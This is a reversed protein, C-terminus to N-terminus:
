ILMHFNGYPAIKHSIDKISLSKHSRLHPQEYHKDRCFQLIHKEAKKMPKYLLVLFLYPFESEIKSILM